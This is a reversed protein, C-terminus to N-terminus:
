SFSKPLCLLDKMDKKFTCNGQSKWSNRWNWPGVVINSCVRAALILSTSVDWSTLSTASACGPTTCGTTVSGWSFGVSAALWSFAVMGTVILAGFILVALIPLSPFTVNSGTPPPYATSNFQYPHSSKYEVQIPKETRLAFIWKIFRYLMAMLLCTGLRAIAVELYWNLTMFGVGWWFNLFTAQSPINKRTGKTCDGRLSINIRSSM